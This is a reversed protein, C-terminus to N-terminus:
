NGRKGHDIVEPDVYNPDTIGKKDRLAKGGLFARMMRDIVLATNYHKDDYIPSYEDFEIVAVENQIALERVM